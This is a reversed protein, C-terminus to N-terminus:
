EVTLPEGKPPAPLEDLPGAIPILVSRAAFFRCRPCKRRLWPGTIPYMEASLPHPMPSGVVEVIRGASVPPLRITPPDVIMRGSILFCLTGIKLM